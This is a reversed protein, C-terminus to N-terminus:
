AQDSSGNNTKREVMRSTSKRHAGVRGSEEPRKMRTAAPKRSHAEIATSTSLRKTTKPAERQANTAEENKRKKTTVKEKESNSDEKGSQESDEEGDGASTMIRPPKHTDGAQESGNEANKRRREYFINRLAQYQEADLNFRKMLRTRRLQETKSCPVRSRTICPTCSTGKNGPPMICRLGREECRECPKKDNEKLWARAAATSRGLYQSCFQNQLEESPQYTTAVQNENESETPNHTDEEVQEPIEQSSTEGEPLDHSM